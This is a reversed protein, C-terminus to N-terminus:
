NLFLSASLLYELVSTTGYKAENYVVVWWEM